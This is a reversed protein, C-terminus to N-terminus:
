ARGVDLKAVQWAGGVGPGNAFYEPGEVYMVGCRESEFKSLALYFRIPPAFLFTSYRTRQPNDAANSVTDRLFNIITRRHSVFSRTSQPM